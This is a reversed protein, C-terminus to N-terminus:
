VTMPMSSGSGWEQALGSRGLAAMGAGHGSRGGIERRLGSRQPDHPWRWGNAGSTM